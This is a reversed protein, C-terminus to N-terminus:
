KNKPGKEKPCEKLHESQETVKIVKGCDMCICSGKLRENEDQLQDIKDLLEGIPAAKKGVLKETVAQLHKQVILM